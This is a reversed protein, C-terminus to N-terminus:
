PVVCIFGFDAPIETSGAAHFAALGVKLNSLHVDTYQYVQNWNSGDASWYGTYTSGQKSITLYTTTLDCDVGNGTVSAGVEKLFQVVGDNCYCRTLRLYNDDDPYVVLGAQQYNPTPNITVGTVVEFDGAPAPRLLTNENHNWGGYLDGDQITIHLYGPHDVLSWHTPDERVWSWQTDLIASDFYDCWAPTPTPTPPLKIITPTVEKGNALTFDHIGEGSPSTLLHFKGSGTGILKVDYTNLPLAFFWQKDGEEDMWFYSNIPEFEAIWDGNPLIGLRQGQSNVVLVDVPCNVTFAKGKPQKIKVESWPPKWGSDVYEKEKGQRIM